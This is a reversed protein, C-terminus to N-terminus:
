TAVNCFTLISCNDAGRWSMISCLGPLTVGAKQKGGPQIDNCNPM